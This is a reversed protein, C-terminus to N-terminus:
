ARPTAPEAVRYLRWDPQSDGDNPIELELTAVAAGTEYLTPYRQNLADSIGRGEAACGASVQRRQSPDNLLRTFDPDSPVVFTKPKRVGCRRRLRVRHRHDGLGGAPRSQRHLAAIERETSFTARYQARGGKPPQRRVPRAAAGDGARVGTPRLGAPEDGVGHGAHRDRAGTRGGAYGAGRPHRHGSPRGGPRISRAAETAVFAGDPVAVDGPQRSRSRWSTSGCSRFHRAPRTPTPRFHSCRATCRSPSWRVPWNPRRWRMFARGCGRDSHSDAGVANHLGRRVGVRRRLQEGDM